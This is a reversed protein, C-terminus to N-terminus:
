GVVRQGALEPRQEPGQRVALRELAHTLDPFAAGGGQERGSPRVARAGAQQLSKGGLYRPHGIERRGRLQEPWDAFVEDRVTIRGLIEQDSSRPARTPTQPRPTSPAAFRARSRVRPTSGTSTSSRGGGPSTSPSGTNAVESLPRAARVWQSTTTFDGPM